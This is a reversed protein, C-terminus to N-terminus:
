NIKYPGPDLFSIAKRLAAELMAVNQIDYYKEYPEGPEDDDQVGDRREVWIKLFQKGQNQTKQFCLNKAPSKAQKIKFVKSQCEGMAGRLFTQLVSQVFMFDTMDEFEYGLISASVKNERYFVKDRRGTLQYIEIRVGEWSYLLM